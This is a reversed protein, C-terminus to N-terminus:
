LKSEEKETLLAKGLLVLQEVYVTAKSVTHVSEDENGQPGLYSLNYETSDSKDPRFKSDPLKPRVM